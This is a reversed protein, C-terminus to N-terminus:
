LLNFYVDLANQSKMLQDNTLKPVPSFTDHLHLGHIVYFM